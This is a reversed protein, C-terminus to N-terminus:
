GFAKEHHMLVYEMEMLSAYRELLLLYANTEEVTLYQKMTTLQFFIEYVMITSIQERTLELSNNM